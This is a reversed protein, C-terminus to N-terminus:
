ISLKSLKDLLNDGKELTIKNTTINDNYEIIKRALRLRVSEPVTM